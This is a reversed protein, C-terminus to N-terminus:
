ENHESGVEVAFSTNRLNRSAGRVRSMNIHVGEKLIGQSLREQFNETPHYAGLHKKLHIKQTFYRNPCLVCTFYRLDTHTVKHKTLDSSNTFGKKCVDCIYNRTNTHSRVHTKLASSQTYCKGCYDCEYPKELTHKRLHSKLNGAQVFAADCFRCSFLKVNAHLRLHDVLNSKRQFAKDCVECQHRRETSSYVRKQKTKSTQQFNQLIFDVANTTDDESQGDSESPQKEQQQPQLEDQSDGTEEPEHVDIVYCEGEMQRSSDDELVEIHYQEKSEGEEHFTSSESEELFSEEQKSLGDEVSDEKVLSQNLQERKVAAESRLSELLLHNNCSEVIFSYADQLRLQCSQCIKSPLQDGETCEIGTTRRLAAQINVDSVDQLHGDYISLYFESKKSDLCVRCCLLYNEM